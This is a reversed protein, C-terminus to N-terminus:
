RKRYGDRGPPVQAVITFRSAPGGFTPEQFHQNRRSAPIVRGLEERVDVLNFEGPHERFYHILHKTFAGLFDGDVILTQASYSVDDAQSAAAVFTSPPIGTYERFMGAYCCDIIVAKKGPLNALAPYLMSPTLGGASLVLFGEPPKGPRPRNRFGHGSYYFVFHSDITLKPRLQELHTLVTEPTAEDEVLTTINGSFGRSGLEEAMLRTDNKVSPGYIGGVLLAHNVADADGIQAVEFGVAGALSFVDRRHLPYPRDVGIRRGNLTTGNRSWMDRLYFAGEPFRYIACHNRSVKERHEPPLDAITILRELEGIEAPHPSVLRSVDPERGLLAGRSITIGLETGLQRLTLTRTM